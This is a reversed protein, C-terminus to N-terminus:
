IRCVVGSPPAEQHTMYSHGRPITNPEQPLPIGHMERVERKPKSTPTMAGPADRTGPLELDMFDKFHPRKKRSKRLMVLAACCIVAVLGAVVIVM